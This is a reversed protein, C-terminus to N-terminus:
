VMFLMFSIRGIIKIRDVIAQVTLLVPCVGAEEEGTDVLVDILRGAASVDVAMGVVVTEAMGDNVGRGVSVSTDVTAGVSVSSGM